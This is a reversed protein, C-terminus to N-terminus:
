WDRGTALGMERDLRTRVQAAAEHSLGATRTPRPRPRDAEPAVPAVPAVSEAAVVHSDPPSQEGLQAPLSRPPRPKPPPPAPKSSRAELPETPSAEALAVSGLPEPRESLAGKAPSEAPVLLERALPGLPALRERVRAAREALEQPEVGSALWVVCLASALALALRIV